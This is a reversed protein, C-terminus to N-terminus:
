VFRLVSSPAFHVVICYVTSEVIRFISTRYSISGTTTGMGLSMQVLVSGASEPNVPVPLVKTHRHETHALSVHHRSLVDNKLTLDLRILSPSYQM